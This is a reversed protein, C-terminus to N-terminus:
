GYMTEKLQSEEPIDFFHQYESFTQRWSTPLDPFEKEHGHLQGCPSVGGDPFLWIYKKLFCKKDCQDCTSGKQNKQNVGCDFYIPAKDFYTKAIKIFRIYYDLDDNELFDIHIRIKVGYELYFELFKITVYPFRKSLVCHIQANLDKAKQGLRWDCNYVGMHISDCHRRLTNEIGKNFLGNTAVVVKGLKKATIVLTSFNPHLTPEGGSFYYYPLINDPLSRKYAYLATIATKNDLFKIAQESAPKNQFDNLCFKCHKNCHNTLLIRLPIDTLVM